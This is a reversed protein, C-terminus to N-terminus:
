RAPRDSLRIVFKEATFVESFAVVGPIGARQGPKVGLKDLLPKSSVLALFGQRVGRPPERRPALDM